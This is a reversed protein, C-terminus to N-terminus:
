LYTTRTKKQLINLHFAKDTHLFRSKKMPQQSGSNTMSLASAHAQEKASVKGDNALIILAKEDGASAKEKLAKISEAVKAFEKEAEEEKGFIEGLTTVNEKFSEMYKTTDVGMFITPAIKSM